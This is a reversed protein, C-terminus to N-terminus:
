IVEATVFALMRALSAASHKATSRGYGYQTRLTRYKRRVIAAQDQTVKYRWRRGEVHLRMGTETVM